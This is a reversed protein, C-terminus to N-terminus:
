DIPFGVIGEADIGYLEAKAANAVDVGPCQRGIHSHKGASRRLRLLLSGRETDIAPEAM